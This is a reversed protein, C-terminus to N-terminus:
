SYLSFLNQFNLDAVMLLLDLDKDFNLIVVGIGLTQKEGKCFSIIINKKIIQVFQGVAGSSNL